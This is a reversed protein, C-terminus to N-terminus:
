QFEAAPRAAPRRRDNGVPLSKSPTTAPRTPSGCGCTWGCARSWGGPSCAARSRSPRPKGSGTPAPSGTNWRSGGRTSTRTRSTGNSPSSARGATASRGCRHGAAAQPRPRDEVAPGAPGLTAPNPRDQFDLSRVAFWYTGDATATYPPFIAPTPRPPTALQWDRGQDTSVYLQVQKLRNSTDRGFPVRIKRSAPTISRPTARPMAVAAAALLLAIVALSIQCSVRPVLCSGPGGRTGRGTHRTLHNM